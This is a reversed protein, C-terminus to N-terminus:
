SAQGCFPECVWGSVWGNKRWGPVEIIKEATFLHISLVAFISFFPTSYLAPTDVCRPWLHGMLNGRGSPSTRPPM